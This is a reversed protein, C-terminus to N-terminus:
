REVDDVASVTGKSGDITVHQGTTLRRTAGACGVVAPIGFERAAVSAHSFLNGADTVVASARAFLQTWAPATAPAVLVEGAQFADFDGADLVVRVQGTAVGPSVPIGRLDDGNQPAVGDVWNGGDSWDASESGDWIVDAARVGGALSVALVVLLGLWRTRTHM